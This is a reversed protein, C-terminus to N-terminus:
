EVLVSLSDILDLVDIPKSLLSNFGSEEAQKAYEEGSFATLAVSPVTVGSIRLSKMFTYGDEVPLGIDSVILQVGKLKTRAEDASEATVVNIDYRTLAVKLMELTDPDDDIVLVNKGKLRSNDVHEKSTRIIPEELPPSSLPLTITFTAGKGLGESEGKITGDHLEVLNKAISLGLGLGGGKRRLGVSEQSFRNFLHPLFEPKIGIGTDKIVISVTLAKPVIDVTIKGGQPTFKVANNLLNGLIQQLRAPDGTVFLKKDTEKCELIQAKEVVSPGIAVCAQQVIGPIGVILKKVQIKGAVIRSIDLLDEILEVQVRASREIANIAIKISEPNSDLRGSSLLTSYGLISSLPTKLEHSLVALFEDKAKNAGEAQEKALKLNELAKERQEELEIRESIDRAIKSAGIIIDRSNKIPSVTISVSVLTGNKRKRVTEFHEVRLGAKIRSLIGREEETKNEPIIIMISQGIAETASFGFLIEAGHNWSTIIGNMNKSIIADDSSEVIAAFRQNYAEANKRDTIDVNSGVLKEPKGGVFFLKGKGSLWKVKGDPMVIRFEVDYNKGEKVVSLLADRVYDRDESHVVDLFGDKLQGKAVGFIQEINRSWIIEKTNVDWEWSAISAAEQALAFREESLRIEEQVRHKETIDETHIMVIDPALYVFSASLYKMEGTTILRFPGEQTVARQEDYAMNMLKLVEPNNIYVDSAHKGVLDVIGGNTIELAANNYDTLVFDESVKKWSFIPIPSGKFQIRFRELSEALEIKLRQNRIYVRYIIYSSFIFLGYRMLNETTRLDLLFVQIFVGALVCSLVWGRFRASFSALVTGLFLAFTNPGIWPWLMLNIFGGLLTILVAYIYDYFKKM